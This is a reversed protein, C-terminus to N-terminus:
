IGMFDWQNGDFGWSIENFFIMGKGEDV